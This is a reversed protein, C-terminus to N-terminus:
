LPSTVITSRLRLATCIRPGLDLYFLKNFISEKYTWGWTNVWLLFIKSPFRSVTKPWTRWFCLRPDPDKPMFNMLPQKCSIAKLSHPFCFQFSLLHPKLLLRVERQRIGHPARSRWCCLLTQGVKLCPLAETVQALRENAGLWGTPPPRPYPPSSWAGGTSNPGTAWSCGQSFTDSTLECSCCKSM